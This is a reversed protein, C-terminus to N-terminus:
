GTHVVRAEDVIDEEQGQGNRHIDGLACVLILKRWPMRPYCKVLYM